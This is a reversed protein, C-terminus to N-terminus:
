KIQRTVRNTVHPRIDACKLEDSFISDRICTNICATIDETCIDVALKLVSPSINGSTKKSDDLSLIHKRVTSATVYSFEHEYEDFDNSINYYQKIKWVSPHSSFKHLAAEVPDVITLKTSLNLM